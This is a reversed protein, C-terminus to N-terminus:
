WWRETKGGRRSLVLFDKLTRERYKGSTALGVTGPRPLSAPLCAPLRGVMERYRYHRTGPGFRAANRPTATNPPLEGASAPTREAATPHPSQTQPTHACWTAYHEEEAEASLLGRDPPEEPLVVPATALGEELPDERGLSRVQPARM